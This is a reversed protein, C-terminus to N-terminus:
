WLNFLPEPKGNPLPSVLKTDRLFLKGFARAQMAGINCINLAPNSVDRNLIHFLQRVPQLKGDRREKSLISHVFLAAVL